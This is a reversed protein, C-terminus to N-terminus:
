STMVNLLSLWSKLGYEASFRKASAKAAASLDSRRTDDELIGAVASAQADSDFFNVLAADLGNTLAERVPATDSAVIACGCCMAELLSWSLIFPVTLYIHVDSHILVNHYENDQLMGLWHTRTSDLSFNRLGWEKWSLGDKRDSGYAVGQDNGVLLVHLNPRTAQLIEVTKLLQPFGRYEEFCRSVYTVVEVDPFDRLCAPRNQSTPSLRSLYGWDVGEHLTTINTQLSHPFQSRQWATPTICIDCDSFEQLAVSNWIKLKLKQDTPVNGDTLFDVDSGHPNYYWEFLGARRSEPFLTSLFLGNGFGVHTIIWDPLWGESRLLSACRFVAQGEIVAQDYKRLYPHLAASGGTRHNQYTLIRLGPSSPAHWEFQRCIFVVEHGLELLLPVLRRFQAPYNVHSFLFRM